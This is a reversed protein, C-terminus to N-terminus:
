TYQQSYVSLTVQKLKKWCFSYRFTGCRVVILNIVSNANCSISNFQTKAILSHATNYSAINHNQHISISSDACFNPGVFKVLDLFNTISVKFVSPVCATGTMLLVGHIMSPVKPLVRFIFLCLGLTQLTELFLVQLLFGNNHIGTISAM